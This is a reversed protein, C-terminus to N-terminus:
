GAIDKMEGLHVEVKGDHFVVRARTNTQPLRKGDEIRPKFRWKAAAALTAEDVKRSTSSEIVKLDKVRGSDTVTMNLLVWGENMDSAAPLKPKIIFMPLAAGERLEARAIYADAHDAFKDSGMAIYLNALKQHLALINPDDAVLNKKLIAMADLYLGEAKKLQKEIVALDGQMSLFEAVRNDDKGFKKEIIQKGQDILKGASDYDQDAIDLQAEMSLLQAVLPDDAGHSKSREAIADKIEGRAKDLDKKAAYIRAMDEHITLLSSESDKQGHKIKTRAEALYKEADDYKGRLLEVHGLNILLVPIKEHNPGLEKVAMELTKKALAEARDMDGQHYAQNYARYTKMFDNSVDQPYAAFALSLLLMAAAARALISQM